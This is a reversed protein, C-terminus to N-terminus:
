GDNSKPVWAINRYFQKERNINSQERQNIYDILENPSLVIKDPSNKTRKVLFGFKTIWFIFLKQNKMANRAIKAMRGYFKTTHINNFVRTKPMGNPLQILDSSWLQQMYACQLIRQKVEFSKLEVILLANRGPARSIRSIDRKNVNAQLMSCMNLFIANKNENEFYPIGYICLNNILRNQSRLEKANMARASVPPRNPKQISPVITTGETVAEKAMVEVDRNVTNIEDKTGYEMEHKQQIIAMLEDIFIDFLIQGSGFKTNTLQHNFLVLGNEFIVKTNAFHKKLLECFQNCHFNLSNSRHQQKDHEILDILKDSQYECKSCKFMYCHEEIHNLYKDREILKQQCYDCILYPEPICDFARLAIELGAHEITHHFEMETQTEFVRDCIACQYRTSNKPLLKSLVNDNLSIPNSIEHQLISEHEKNFHDILESKQLKTSACIGCTSSDSMNVVAFPESSHQEQHHKSVDTFRATFDCYMCRMKAMVQYQFPRQEALHVLRWHQYVEDVSGMLESAEVCNVCEYFLHSSPFIHDSIFMQVITHVKM